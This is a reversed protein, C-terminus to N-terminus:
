SPAPVVLVPRRQIRALEAPVSRHWLRSTIRGSGAGVVILLADTEQAQQAIAQAPDGRATRYEWDVPTDSLLWRAQSLQAELEAASRAEWDRLEPDPPYDALTIVHVLVLSARLAPALGAAALVARHSAPHNDYGVLLRTHWPGFRPDGAPLDDPEM